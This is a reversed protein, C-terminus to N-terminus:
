AQAGPDILAALLRYIGALDQRQTPNLHDVAVVGTATAALADM